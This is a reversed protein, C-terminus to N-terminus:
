SCESARGEHRLKPLTVFWRPSWPLIASVADFREEYGAEVGHLWAFLFHVGLVPRPAHPVGPCRSFLRVDLRKWDAQRCPKTLNRTYGPRESMTLSHERLRPLFAVPRPPRPRYPGTVRIFSASNM